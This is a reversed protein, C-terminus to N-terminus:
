QAIRGIAAPKSGFRAILEPNDLDLQYAWDFTAQGASANSSVAYLAAFHNDVTWIIYVHGPIVEVAGTPSWGGDPAWDAKSIGPQSTSYGADQIQANVGGPIILALSGGAADLYVDTCSCDWSARTAHLSDFGSRAPDSGSAASLSVSGAPRPTDRVASSLNSENGTFDYSTVAYYYKVGNTVARDTFTNVTLSAVRAYSGDASPSRYVRYGAVDSEDNPSWHVDVQEDGTVTYVGDPVSPPIEDRPSTTSECGAVALGFVAVAGIGAARLRWM